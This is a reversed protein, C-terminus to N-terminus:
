QDDETVWKQELCHTCYFLNKAKTRTYGYGGAYGPVHRLLKWVHECTM